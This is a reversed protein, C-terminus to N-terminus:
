AKTLYFVANVNVQMVQQWDQAPYFELPTRAGLLAANHIIGDLAGVQKAVSKALDSYEEDKATIFDM